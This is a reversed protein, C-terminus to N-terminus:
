RVLPDLESTLVLEAAEHEEYPGMREVVDMVIRLEVRRGIGTEPDLTADHAVTGRLEASVGDARAEDSVELSRDLPGECRVRRSAPAEPESASTCRVSVSPPLGSDPPWGISLTAAGDNEIPLALGTGGVPLLTLAQSLETGLAFAVDADLLEARPGALRQEASVAVGGASPDIERLVHDAQLQRARLITLRHRGRAEVRLEGSVESVNRESRRTRVVRRVFAYTLEPAPRLAAEVTGSTAGLAAGGGCGLLCLSAVASIARAGSTM